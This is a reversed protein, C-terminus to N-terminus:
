PESRESSALLRACAGCLAGGGSVAEGCVECETILAPSATPPFDTVSSLTVEDDDDDRAGSASSDGVGGSTHPTAVL